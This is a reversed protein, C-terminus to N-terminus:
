AGEPPDYFLAEMAKAFPDEGNAIQAATFPGELIPLAGRLGDRKLVSSSEALAATVAALREIDEGKTPRWDRLVEVLGLFGEAAADEALESLKVRVEAKAEVIMESTRLEIQRDHQQARDRWKDKASWKQFWHLSPPTIGDAILKQRLGELTRPGELQLYAAFAQEPTMM